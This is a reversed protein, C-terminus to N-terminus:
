TLTEVPFCKLRTRRSANVVTMGAAKIVPAARNFADIMAPWPSPNEVAPPHSGFFHKPESSDHGMDFGLLLAERHGLAYALNLAQFGSNSGYVIGHGTTDFTGEFRGPIHNLGYYDAAEASTTWRAKMDRTSSEHYHWWPLDCAYLIDARRAMRYADNVAIVFDCEGMGLDVDLQTLSPGTAIILARTM